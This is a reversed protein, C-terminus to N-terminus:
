VQRNMKQLVKNNINEKRMNFMSRKYDMAITLELKLPKLTNSETIQSKKQENKKNKEGNIRTCSTKDKKYSKHNSQSNVNRSTKRCFHKPIHTLNTNYNVQISLIVIFYSAM